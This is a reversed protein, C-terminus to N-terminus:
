ESINLRMAQEVAERATMENTLVSRLNHFLANKAESQITDQVAGVLNTIHANAESASRQISNLGSPQAGGALATVETTVFSSLVEDSTLYSVFRVAAERQKPDDWAKRTIFYGMSIGGIIDTPKRAGKAPVYTIIFNQLRGVYNANFYGVRWSGDIMFAAKDEGFMAITEAETTTLTNSPFYGRDYLLKIDEIAAIWNQAAVDDILNGNEDVSPVLLHNEPSGNNMVMYEFWYHPIEFLSCAIPTYGAQKITECDVLFQEWTYDAGPVAVGCKDLVAKNAFLHEWYGAAPVDYHRGDAATHLMSKNMNAAYDPYEQRIEEISVVKGAEIFPRADANTFFYLVDPESGTRFDDLVRMKWEENSTASGDDVCNGTAAEYARVAEEFNRRSGDDGGYSTVVRLTVGQCTDDTQKDSGKGPDSSPDGFSCASLPMAMTCALLLAILKRM